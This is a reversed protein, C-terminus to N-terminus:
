KLEVLLQSKPVTDGSKVYIKKVVGNIPSILVNNMKMAQLTLLPEGKKVRKNEKVFIKLIQGPIFAIIKRPDPITYPKRNQFKKTYLTRYEVDEFFFTHYEADPQEIDM